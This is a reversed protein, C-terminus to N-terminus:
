CSNVCTCIIVEFDNNSAVSGELLLINHSSSAELGGCGFLLGQFGPFFLIGGGERGEFNVIVAVVAIAFVAIAVAVAITIIGGSSGIAVIDIVVVAANQACCYPPFSALAGHLV